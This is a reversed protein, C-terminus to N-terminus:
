RSRATVVPRFDALARDIKGADRFLRARNGYAAAYNPDLRILRELDDLAPTDHGRKALQHRPQIPSRSNPKLAIAQNYDALASGLIRRKTATPIAAIISTGSRRAFQAPDRQNYDAIAHDPDGKDSYTIGRNFWASLIKGISRSLATSIPSRMTWCARAAIAGGRNTYAGFYKPDLRILESFNAIAVDNNNKSLYDSGRNLYAGILDKRRTGQGCDAGHM